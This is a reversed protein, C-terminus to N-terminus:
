AAGTSADYEARAYDLLAALAVTADDLPRCNPLHGLQHGEAIDAAVALVAMVAPPLALFAGARAIKASWDGATLYPAVAEADVPTDPM